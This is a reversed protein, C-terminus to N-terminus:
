ELEEIEDKLAAIEAQRAASYQSNPALREYNELNRKARKLQRVEMKRQETSVTEYIEGLDEHLEVKVAEASGRADHRADLTYYIGAIILPSFVTLVAIIAYIEPNSSVRQKFSM